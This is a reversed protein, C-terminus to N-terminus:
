LDSLVRLSAALHVVFYNQDLGGHINPLFYAFAQDTLRLKV